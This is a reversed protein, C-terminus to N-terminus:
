LHNWFLKDVDISLGGLFSIGDTFPSNFYHYTPNYNFLNDITFTLKFAKAIRQTLLLKWLTYAPYHVNIRALQGTSPDITTYDVFEINDVGSMVRGNLAINLGYRSCFQHDWDLNAIFSHPRAPQYQNNISEGHEDKVLQEHVYAYQLKMGFGCKWRKHVSVDLGASSYQPVNVYPLWRTTGLLSRDGPFISIDQPAGTTIRNRILNYYASLTVNWGLYLWDASLNFNHSLEPVLDTGAINSGVVDWIGSMNFIYYREKLTPARFGMGYGARLTLTHFANYRDAFPTYRLNLKPTVQSVRNQSFYDYRVAGVVEFQPCVTWDYQGFFDFSQQSYTGDATKTNVLHDYLFDGGFTLASAHGSGSHFNHTYLARVTHQRNSYNRMCRDTLQNHQAKDYQDFNYSLQLNDSETINWFAKVGGTYDRYHDPLTPTSTARDRFYYGFNATFRLTSLPKWTLKDSFNLTKDGYYRDVMFLTVAKQRDGNQVDYSDIATRSFNFANQIYKSNLGFSLGYRQNNHTGYRGNVNVSWPKTPTKTIINIVGGAASSGYLASAAGKIIEIREVNALNLRSFDVDDMTEGALREGDVLFLVSQGGFGAFNFHTLQNMAYSFEVGPLEHSLLDEINTADLREIDQHTILRTQIPVDKLLKQTRTGTVVVQDMEHDDSISDSVGQAMACPTLICFAFNFILFLYKQM